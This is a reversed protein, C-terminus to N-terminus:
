KTNWNAKNGWLTQAAKAKAWGDTKLKWGSDVTRISNSASSKHTKEVHNYNSYVWEIGIFGHEWKGGGVYETTLPTISNDNGIFRDNIIETYTNTDYDFTGQNIGDSGGEISSALTTSVPLVFLAVAFLVSALTKKLILM